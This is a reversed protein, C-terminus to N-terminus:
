KVKRVKSESGTEDESSVRHDINFYYNFVSGFEFVIKFELSEKAVFSDRFSM